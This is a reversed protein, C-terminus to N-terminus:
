SAALDQVISVLLKDGPSGHREAHYIGGADWLLYCIARITHGTWTTPRLRAATLLYPNLAEDLIDLATNRADVDVIAQPGTFTALKRVQLENAATCATLLALDDQIPSGVSGTSMVPPIALLRSARTLLEQPTPRLRGTDDETM